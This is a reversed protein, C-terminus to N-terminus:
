AVSRMVALGGALAGVAGIVSFAAYALAMGFQGREMMLVTELSFSSFTTFGGLVGVALLLRIPEGSGTSFRALWGALLGMAFGGIINAGFTGWPWLAGPALHGSLRGLLYRLASGVAGGTMVLFINTM